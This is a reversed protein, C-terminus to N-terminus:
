ALRRYIYLPTSFPQGRVGRTCAISDGRFRWLAKSGGGYLTRSPAVHAFVSWGPLARRFGLSRGDAMKIKRLFYVSKRARCRRCNILASAASLTTAYSRPYLDCSLRPHLTMFYSSAVIDLLSASSATSRLKWSMRSIEAFSRAHENAHLYM